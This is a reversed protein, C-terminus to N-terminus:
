SKRRQNSKWQEVQWPQEGLKLQLVSKRRLVNGIVRGHDLARIPANQNISHDDVTLVNLRIANYMRCCSFRKSIGSRALECM